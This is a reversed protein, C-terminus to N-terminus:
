YEREEMMGPANSSPDNFFYVVCINLLPTRVKHRQLRYSLPIYPFCFNLPPLFHTLRANTLKHVAGYSWGGGHFFINALLIKEESLKITNRTERWHLSQATYLNIISKPSNSYIWFYKWYFNLFLIFELHYPILLFKIIINIAM